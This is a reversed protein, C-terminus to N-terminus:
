VEAPGSHGREERDRQARARLAARAASEVELEFRWGGVVVERRTPGRGDSGPETPLLLLREGPEGPQELVAREGDLWRLRADGSGPAAGPPSAVLPELGAAASAPGLTVRVVRPDIPTPSDTPVKVAAMSRDGGGPRKPAM